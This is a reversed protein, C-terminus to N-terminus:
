RQVKAIAIAVAVQTSANPRTSPADVDGTCVRHGRSVLMEVGSVPTAASSPSDVGMEGEAEVAADVVDIRAANIGCANCSLGADAHQDDPRPDRHFLQNWLAM